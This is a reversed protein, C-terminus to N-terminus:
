ASQQFGLAKLTHDLKENRARPAQRLAYLAKKLRM